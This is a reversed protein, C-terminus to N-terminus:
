PAPWGADGPDHYAPAAEPRQLSLPPELTETLPVRHEQRRLSEGTAAILGILALILVLALTWTLLRGKIREERGLSM